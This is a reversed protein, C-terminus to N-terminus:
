IIQSYKKELNCLKSTM